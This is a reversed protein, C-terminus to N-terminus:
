PLILHFIRISIRLISIQWRFLIRSLEVVDLNKFSQHQLVRATMGTGYGIVLARDRQKTHLLPILAISEQAVMEGGEANNGQFKGNTLLTLIKGNPAKAVTTLGGEVSEAHDIVEGWLQPHFYVNGGQSLATYNWQAPFLLLAAAMAGVPIWRLAKNAVSREYLVESWAALGALLVATIALGLLVNRSGFFPLLYFGALLVGAINGLTNVASALGVGRAVV